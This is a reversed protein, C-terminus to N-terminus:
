RVSDRWSYPKRARLCSLRFVPGLAVAGSARLFHAVRLPALRTALRRALVQTARGQSVGFVVVTPPVLCTSIIFLSAGLLAYPYAIWGRHLCCELASILGGAAPLPIAFILSSRRFLTWTTRLSAKLACNSLHITGTWQWAIAIFAIAGGASD